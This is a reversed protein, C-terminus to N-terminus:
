PKKYAQMESHTQFEKATLNGGVQVMTLYKGAIGAQQIEIECTRRPIAILDGYVEEFALEKVIVYTYPYKYGSVAVFEYYVGITPQLRRKYFSDPKAQSPRSFASFAWLGAFIFFCYLIHHKSIKM